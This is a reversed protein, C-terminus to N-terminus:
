LVSNILKKALKFDLKRRFKILAEKTNDIAVLGLNGNPANFKVIKGMKNIDVFHNNILCNGIKGANAYHNNGADPFVENAFQNNGAPAYKEIYFYIKMKTKHKM